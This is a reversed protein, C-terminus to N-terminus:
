GRLSSPSSCGSTAGPSSRHLRARSPSSRGQLEYTDAYADPDEAMEFNRRGLLVAGTEEQTAKTYPMDRLEALDPYLADASGNTM